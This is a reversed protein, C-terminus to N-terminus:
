DAREHHELGPAGQALQGLEEGIRILNLDSLEVWLAHAIHGGTYNVLAILPLVAAAYTASRVDRAVVSDTIQKLVLPALPWSVYNLFLLAFSAAMRRPSARWAGSIIEGIGRTFGIM